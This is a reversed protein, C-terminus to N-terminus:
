KRLPPVQVLLQRSVDMLISHQAAKTSYGLKNEKEDYIPIGENM